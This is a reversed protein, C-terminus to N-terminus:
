KEFERVLADFLRVGYGRAGKPITPLSEDAGDVGAMDIHAWPTPQPTLFGIFHAGRGAGPGAKTTGNAIDAIPSEM